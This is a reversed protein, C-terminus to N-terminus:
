SAAGAWARQLVRPPRTLQTRALRPAIGPLHRLSLPVLTMPCLGDGVRPHEILTLRERALEAREAESLQEPVLTQTAAISPAGRSKAPQAVVLETM